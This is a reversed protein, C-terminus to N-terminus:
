HGQFPEFTTEFAEFGKQITRIEMQFSRFTRFQIQFSQIWKPHNSNLTLHKSDRESQEFKCQFSEFGGSITRIHNSLKSDRKFSEFKYKFVEFLEFNYKFAKFGKRIIKFKLQISRIGKFLNLNAKSHNSDRQFPEFTTEFGEFGKQITRIQM